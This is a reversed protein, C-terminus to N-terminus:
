SFAAIGINVMKEVKRATKIKVIKVIDETIWTFAAAASVALTAMFGMLIHQLNLLSIYYRHHLKM